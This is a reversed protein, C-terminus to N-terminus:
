WKRDKLFAHIDHYLHKCYLFKHRGSTPEGMDLHEYHTDEPKESRINLMTDMWLEPDYGLVHKQIQKRRSREEKEAITVRAIVTQVRKM